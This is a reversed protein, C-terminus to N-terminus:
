IDSLGFVFFSNVNKKNQNNVSDLGLSFSVPLIKILEVKSFLM